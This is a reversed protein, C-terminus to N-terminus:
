DGFKKGTSGFGGRDPNGLTEVEEFMVEPMKEMIRFHCIKDGKHITTDKSAYVSMKWQDNDGCYASDIIGPSNPQLIGWTKFTSSRPAVHAEYGDPLRMAIGLPVLFSDGASLRVSEAAYLDIWDGKEVKQIRPVTNDFYKIKIQLPNNV